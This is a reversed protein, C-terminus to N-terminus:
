DAALSTDTTDEMARTRKGPITTSTDMDGAGGDAPKEIAADMAALRTRPAAKSDEKHYGRQKSLEHLRGYSLQDNNTTDAPPAQPPACNRDFPSSAPGEDAVESNPPLQASRPRFDPVPILRPPAMSPERTMDTSEGGGGNGSGRGGFGIARGWKRRTKRQM